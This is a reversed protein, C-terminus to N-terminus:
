CVVAGDNCPEGRWPRWLTGPPFGSELQLPARRGTDMGACLGEVQFVSRIPECRIVYTQLTLGPNM